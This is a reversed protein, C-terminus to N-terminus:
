STQWDYTLCTVQEFNGRGFFGSLGLVAQLFLCFCGLKGLVSLGSFGLDLDMVSFGDLAVALGRM